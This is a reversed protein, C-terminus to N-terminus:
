KSRGSSPKKSTSVASGNLSSVDATLGELQGKMNKVRDMSRAFFAISHEVEWALLEEIDSVSVDVDDLNEIKNTIKGTKSREHLASLIVKERLDPNFYVSAAVAPDGMMTTIENLLGFSMLIERDEGNQKIEIRDSPTSM